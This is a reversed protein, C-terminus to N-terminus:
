LLSHLREAGASFPLVCSLSYICGGFAERVRCRSGAPQTTSGLLRTPVPSRRNVLVWRCSSDLHASFSVQEGGSRRWSARGASTSRCLFCFTGYNCCLCSAARDRLFPGHQLERGKTFNHWRPVLGERPILCAAAYVSSSEAGHCYASYTVRGGLSWACCEDVRELVSALVYIAVPDGGQELLASGPGERVRSPVHFCGYLLASRGESCARSSKVRRQTGFEFYPGAGSGLATRM